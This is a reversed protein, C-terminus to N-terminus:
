SGYRPVGEVGLIEGFYVRHYDKEPYETEVAPDLFGAPNLNDIPIPSRNM